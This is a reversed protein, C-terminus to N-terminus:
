VVVVDKVAIGGALPVLWMKDVTGGFNHFAPFKDVKTVLLDFKLLCGELHFNLPMLKHQPNLCAPPGGEVVMGAVETVVGISVARFRSMNAMVGGGEVILVLSTNFVPSQALLPVTGMRGRTKMLYIVCHIGMIGLVKMLSAGTIGM